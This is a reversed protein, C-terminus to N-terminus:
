SFPYMREGGPLEYKLAKVEFFLIIGPGTGEGIELIRAMDMFLSANEQVWVGKMRNVEDFSKCSRAMELAATPLQKQMAAIVPSMDAVKKGGFYKIGEALHTHLSQWEMARAYLKMLRHHNNIAAARRQRLEVPFAKLPFEYGCWVGGGSGNNYGVPPSKLAATLEGNSVVSRTRPKMSISMQGDAHDALHCEIQNLYTFRGGHAIAAAHIFARLTQLDKKPDM